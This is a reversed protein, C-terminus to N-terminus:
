FRVQIQALVGFSKSRNRVPILSVTPLESQKKAQNYASIASVVRNVVMLGLIAPLQNRVRDVDSRLNNYDERDQRSEWIWNNDPNEEFLRNWNRSRLQYDNYEKLTNFNGLALKFTRSRQSIDIGARLSALTEYQSQLTNARIRFGFYSAILAAEVGLHVQGRTWQDHNVYYHGWGPVILSRIFAGEPDPNQQADCVTVSLLLLLVPISIQFIVKM